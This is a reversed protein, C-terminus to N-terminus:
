AHVRSAGPHVRPGVSRAVGPDVRDGARLRRVTEDALICLQAFGVVSPLARLVGIDLGTGEAEDQILAALRARTAIVGHLLAAEPDGRTLAVGASEFAEVAQRWRQQRSAPPEQGLIQREVIDMERNMRLVLRARSRVLAFAGSSWWRALERGIGVDTRVSSPESLAGLAQALSEFALLQAVQLQKRAEIVEAPEIRLRAASASSPPWEGLTVDVGIAELESDAHAIAEDRESM